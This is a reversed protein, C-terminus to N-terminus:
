AKTYAGFGPCSPTAPCAQQFNSCMWIGTTLSPFSSMPPPPPPTSLHITPPQCCVLKLEPLATHQHVNPVVSATELLLSAIEDHGNAVAAQLAGGYVGGQTNVDAGKELLLQVIM